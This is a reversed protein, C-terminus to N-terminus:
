NRTGKDMGSAGLGAAKCCSGHQSKLETEMDCLLRHWEQLQASMKGLFEMVVAIEEKGSHSHMEVEEAKIDRIDNFVKLASELQQEQVELDKRQAPTLGNVAAAAARAAQQFPLICNCQILKSLAACSALQATRSHKPALQKSHALLCCSKQLLSGTSSNVLLCPYTTLQSGLSRQQSLAAQQLVLLRLAFPLSM